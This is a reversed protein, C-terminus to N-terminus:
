AQQILAPKKKVCSRCFESGDIKPRCCQKGKDVGRSFIYKCGGQLASTQICVKCWQQNKNRIEIKCRECIYIGNEPCHKRCFSTGPMIQQCCKKVLPTRVNVFKNIDGELLEQSLTGDNNLYVNQQCQSMQRYLRYPSEIDKLRADFLTEPCKLDRTAYHKWLTVEELWKLNEKRLQSFTHLDKALMKMAYELTMEDPLVEM